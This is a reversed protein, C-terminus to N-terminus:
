SLGGCEFIPALKQKPKKDRNGTHPNTQGIGVILQNKKQNEQSEQQHIYGIALIACQL